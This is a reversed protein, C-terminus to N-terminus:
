NPLFERDNEFTYFEKINYYKDYRIIISNCSLSDKLLIQSCYINKDFRDAYIQITKIKASPKRLCEVSTGNASNSMVLQHKLGYDNTYYQGNYKYFRWVVERRKIGTVADKRNYAIVVSNREQEVTISPMPVDAKYMVRSPSQRCGYLLFLLVAFGMYVYKQMKYMARNENTFNSM